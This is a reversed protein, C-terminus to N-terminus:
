AGPVPVTFPMASWATSASPRTCASIRRICASTSGNLVSTNLPCQDGTNVARGAPEGSLGAFPPKLMRSPSIRCVGSSQSSASTGTTSIAARMQCSACVSRNTSDTAAIMGSAAKSLRAVSDTAALVPSVMPPSSLAVSPFRVSSIMASAANRAPWYTSTFADIAPAM